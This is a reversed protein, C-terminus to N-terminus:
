RVFGVCGEQVAHAAAEGEAAGGLLGLAGRGEGRAERAGPGGGEEGRLAVDRQRPRAQLCRRALALVADHRRRLRRLPHQERCQKALPPENNRPIVHLDM